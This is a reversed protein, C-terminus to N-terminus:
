VKKSQRILRLYPRNKRLSVGLDSARARVASITRCLQAAIREVVWKGARDSLFHDEEPSWQRHSNKRRRPKRAKPEHCPEHRAILNMIKKRDRQSSLDFAMTKGQSLKATIIM